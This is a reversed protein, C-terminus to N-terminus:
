KKWVQKEGEGYGAPLAVADVLMFGLDATYNAKNSEVTVPISLGNEQLVSVIQGIDTRLQTPVIQAPWTVRLTYEAPYLNEFLYYGYQDSVTTAMVREGRLLEITVGPIGGEDGDQLGNGNLDLWVKDGLRGPLVNGVDMRLQHKAMRLTFVDSRGHLGNAESLVSVLGAEALHPDSSEVLVYGSPVTVELAYEGPMLGKFLYKGDEGTTYEALAKGTGDQLFVKAGSIATVGDYKELWVQGGIETTRAM